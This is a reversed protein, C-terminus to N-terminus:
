RGNGIREDKLATLWQRLTSAFWRNERGLRCDPAPFKKDHILASLTRPSSVDLFRLVSETSVLADGVGDLPKPIELEQRM